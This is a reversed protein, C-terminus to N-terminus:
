EIRRMRAYIYCGGYDQNIFKKCDNFIYKHKYMKEFLEKLDNENKAIKEAKRKSLKSNSSRIIPKELNRSASWRKTGKNFNKIIYRAKGELGYEDPQLRDAQVRGKGWLDEVVNRDMKNIIMHHHIRIKKSNGKEDEGIFEVVYVYKLPELNNKERYRKIRRIYNQIDRRAEKETPLYGDAYTLDIALDDKGFNANVLRIFRKRSNKDNLNKQCNRSDKGKEKRPTDENRIYVPYIESELYKGSIITKVIYKYKYTRMRELADIISEEGLVEKNYIEEYQYERIMQQVGTM